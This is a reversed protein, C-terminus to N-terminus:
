RKGRLEVTPTISDVLAEAAATLQGSGGEQVASVRQLDKARTTWVKGYMMLKRNFHQLEGWIVMDAGRAKALAIIAETDHALVAERQEGTLTDIRLLTAEERRPLRNLIAWALADGYGVRRLTGGSVTFPILLIKAKSTGASPQAAMILALSQLLEDNTNLRQGQTLWQQAEDNAGAAWAVYTLNSLADINTAEDRLARQFYTRAEAPRGDLAKIVGLANQASAKAWQPGQASQTAQAYLEQAKEKDGLSFSLDGEVLLALSTIPSKQLSERAQPLLGQDFYLAALGDRGLGSVNAPLAAVRHLASFALDTDGAHLTALAEEYAQQLPSVGAPRQWLFLLYVSVLVAILLGAGSALTPIRSRHRTIPTLVSPPVTAQTSALHVPLSKDQGIAVKGTTAAPAVNASLLSFSPDGYLMYSAWTLGQWGRQSIVAHRAQLLANGLNLGTVLGKYFSSAFLVSEEDHVVWFTGVYNKVGALLFASGIGFAQGEYRYGQSWEASTGAQCSNSFVLLPPRSLKSLESATLVGEHLRWGSKSPNEADYHSHGAFHVIQHDQLAALLPIKRAGKGGILTLEVGPIEDLLLSLRDAEAAAEPLSETPDAILLVRLKGDSEEHVSTPPIQHGTIIQRGVRFKTGLFHAGDYCLEWPIHVLQEDLRLYLDCSNAARIRRRAPETLLHSFILSGIRQLDKIAAGSPQPHTLPQLPYQHRMRGPTALHMVETALEDLFTSDVQTESRPILAGVEDLDIINTDGKRLITLHIPPPTADM